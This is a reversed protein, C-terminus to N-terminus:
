KTKSVFNCKLWYVFNWSRNKGWKKNMSHHFFLKNISVHCFAGSVSLSFCTKLKLIKFLNGRSLHAHFIANISAERTELLENRSISKLTTLRSNWKFHTRWTLGRCTVFNILDWCAIMTLPLSLMHKLTISRLKVERRCESTTTTTERLALDFPLTHSQQKQKDVARSQKLEVRTAQYISTFLLLKLLKWHSQFLKSRTTCQTVFLDGHLGSLIEAM